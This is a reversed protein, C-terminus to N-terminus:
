EYLMEMDVAKFGDATKSLFIKGAFSCVRIENGRKVLVLDFKVDVSFDNESYKQYNSLVENEFTYSRPYEGYRNDLKLLRAGFDSESHILPSIKSFKENAVTVFVAYKKYFDRCFDTVKSKEDDSIALSFDVEFENKELKLVEESAVGSFETIYTFEDIVYKNLFYKKSGIKEFRDTILVPEDLFKSDIEKGNALVSIGDAFSVSYEFLACEEFSTFEYCSHNFFSKKGTPSVTLTGFKKKGAMFDYIKVEDTSSSQEFYYLEESAIYKTIYEKFVSKTKLADPTNSLYSYVADCDTTKYANLIEDCYREPRNREFDALYFGFVALLIVFLAGLSAWSIFFIKKFKENKM